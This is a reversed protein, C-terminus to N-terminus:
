FSGLKYLLLGKGLIAEKFDPKLDLAMMYDQYANEFDGLLNFCEARRYFSMFDNPKKSVVIDLDKKTLDFSETNTLVMIRGYYAPIFDPNLKLANEYDNLAGITDGSYSKYDARSSLAMYDWTNIALLTDLDLIAGEYDSIKSKHFSRALFAETNRSKSSIVDNLSDISNLHFDSESFERSLQSLVQFSLFLSLFMLLIKMFFAKNSTIDQWVVFNIDLDRAM